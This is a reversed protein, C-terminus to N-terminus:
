LARVATRAAPRRGLGNEFGRSAPRGQKVFDCSSAL